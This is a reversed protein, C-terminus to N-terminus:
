QSTISLLTYGTKLFETANKAQVNALFLYSTINFLRYSRQKEVSDFKVKCNSTFPKKKFIFSYFKM